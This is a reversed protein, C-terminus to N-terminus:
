IKRFFSFIIKKDDGPLANKLEFDFPADFKLLLNKEFTVMLRYLRPSLVQGCAFKTWLTCLAVVSNVQRIESADSRRTHSLASDFICQVSQGM